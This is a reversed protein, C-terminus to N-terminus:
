TNRANLKLNIAHGYLILLLFGFFYGRNFLATIMNNGALSQLFLLLFPLFIIINQKLFSQLVKIIIAILIYFLFPGILGLNYYAHGIFGVNVWSTGDEPFLILGVKRAAPYTTSDFHESFFYPMENKFIDFYAWSLWANTEIPRFFIFHSIPYFSTSNLIHTAFVLFVMATFIFFIPNKLRILVSFAFIFFVQFFVVRSGTYFYILIPILLLLFSLAYKKKYFLYSFALPVVSSILFSRTYELIAPIKQSSRFEYVSFINLLGINPMGKIAIFLGIVSIITIVSVVFSINAADINNLESLKLRPFYLTLLMLSLFGIANVWLFIGEKDATVYYAFFPCIIWTYFLTLCITISSKKNIVLIQTILISYTVFELLKRYNLNLEIGYYRHWEYSSIFALVIGTIYVLNLLHIIISSSIKGSEKWYKDVRSPYAYSLM